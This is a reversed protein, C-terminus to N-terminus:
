GYIVEGHYILQFYADVVEVDWNCSDALEAGFNLSGVFLKKNDIETALMKLAEIYREFPINKKTGEYSDVFTTSGDLNACFNTVPYVCSVGDVCMDPVETKIWEEANSIITATIATM